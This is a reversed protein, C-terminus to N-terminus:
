GYTHPTKLVNNIASSTNCSQSRSLDKKRPGNKTLVFILPKPKKSDPYEGTVYFNDKGVIEIYQEKAAYHPPNDDDDKIPKCSAVVFAGTCKKNLLKLSSECPEDDKEYPVKNFFTWSCHHPALFIDWKLTSDKSKEVIKEWIGFESDGGFIVQVANEEGDIDFRAQLVVSTDNREAWKSDTDNKFPAHVFFSFDNLTTGNISNISNGPIIIIDELGKLEPNDSYGIIRLRNGSDKRESKKDQYLKMRRKAEKRFAKATPCMDKEHPSFIRPTFWLEDIRILGDKKDEDSYDAPDGTYFTDEFGGCHDKDPHTLIFADVFPIGDDTNLVSLLHSQVDFTSEDSEDKSSKTINCDILINMGNSLRILSTDGNGVPYITISSDVM